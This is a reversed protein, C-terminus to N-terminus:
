SRDGNAPKKPVGLIMRTEVCERWGSSVSCHCVARRWPRPPEQIEQNQFASESCWQHVLWWHCRADFMDAKLASMGGSLRVHWGVDVPSKTGIIDEAHTKEQACTQLGQPRVFRRDQQIMVHLKNQSNRM